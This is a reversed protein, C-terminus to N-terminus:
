TNARRFAKAADAFHEIRKNTRGFKEEFQAHAEDIADAIEKAKLLAQEEFEERTAGIHEILDVHSKRRAGLWKDIARIQEALQLFGDRDRQWRKEYEGANKSAYTAQAANICLASYTRDMNGALAIIAEVHAIFDLTGEAHRRVFTDEINLAIFAKADDLIDKFEKAWKSALSMVEAYEISDTHM